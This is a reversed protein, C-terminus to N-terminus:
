YGQNFNPNQGQMPAYGGQMTDIISDKELIQQRLRAVERAHDLTQQELQMQLAEVRTEANKARVEAEVKEIDGSEDKGSPNIDASRLKQRLDQIIEELKLIKFRQKEEVNDVYAADAELQQRHREREHAESDKM